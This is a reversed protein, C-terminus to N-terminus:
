FKPIRNCSGVKKANIIQCNGMGTTQELERHLQEIKWRLPCKQQTAKTDDQSLDNVRKESGSWQRRVSEIKKAYPKSVVTDDFLLYGDPDFEIDNKVSRWLDGSIVLPFVNKLCCGIAHTMVGATQTCGM